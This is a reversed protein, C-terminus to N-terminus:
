RWYRFIAEDVATSSNARKKAPTQKDQNAWSLWALDAAPRKVTYTQLVTDQAKPLLKTGRGRHPLWALSPSCVLPNLL